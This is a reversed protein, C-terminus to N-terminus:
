TKKIELFNHNGGGGYDPIFDHDMPFVCSFKFQPLIKLFIINLFMRM